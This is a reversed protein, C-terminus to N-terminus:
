CPLFSNIRLTICTNCLRWSGQIKKVGLRKVFASFEALAEKSGIYVFDLLRNYDSSVLSKFDHVPRLVFLLILPIETMFLFLSYEKSHRWCMKMYHPAVQEPPTDNPIESYEPVNHKIVSRCTGIAAAGDMDANMVLLNGGPVFAKLAIPKGTVM